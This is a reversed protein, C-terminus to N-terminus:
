LRRDPKMSPPQKEISYTAIIQTAGYSSRRRHNTACAWKKSSFWTMGVHRKSEAMAKTHRVDCASAAELMSRGLMTTMKMSSM